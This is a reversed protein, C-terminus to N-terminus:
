WTTQVTVLRNRGSDFAMSRGYLDPLPVSIPVTTWVAGDWLAAVVGASGMFTRHLGEHYVIIDNETYSTVPGTSARLAWTAGDWEWTEWLPDSNSGGGYRITRARDSDYALTIHSSPSPGPTSVLTWSAGDWEWTGPDPKM